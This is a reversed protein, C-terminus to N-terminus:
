LLIMEKKLRIKVTRHISFHNVGNQSILQDVIPLRTAKLLSINMGHIAAIFSKSQLM